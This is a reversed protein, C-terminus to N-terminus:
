HSGQVASKCEMPVHRTTHKLNRHVQVDAWSPKAQWNGPQVSQRLLTRAVTLLGRRLEQLEGPGLAGGGAPPRVADQSPQTWYHARAADLLRPVGLLKRFMGPEAQLYGRDRSPVNSVSKCKCFCGVMM